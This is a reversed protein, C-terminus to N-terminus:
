TIFVTSKLVTSVRLDILEAAGRVQRVGLPSLSLSLSISRAIKRLLNFENASAQKNM